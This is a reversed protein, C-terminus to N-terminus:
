ICIPCTSIRTDQSGNGMIDRSVNPRPISWQPLMDNCDLSFRQRLSLSRYLSLSIYLSLSLSPLYFPLSPALSHSLSLFLSRSLPLSFYLSSLSLFLSLSISLYLSPAFSLSLSFSSGKVESKRVKPSCFRRVLFSFESVLSAYSLM